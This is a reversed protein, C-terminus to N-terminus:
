MAVYIINTPVFFTSRRQVDDTEKSELKAVSQVSKSTPIPFQKRPARLLQVCRPLTFIYRVEGLNILKAHSSLHLSFSFVKRPAKNVHLRLLFFDAFYTDFRYYLFFVTLTKVKQLFFDAQKM